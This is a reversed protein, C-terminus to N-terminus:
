VLAHANKLDITNQRDAHTRIMATCNTTWTGEMLMRRVQIQELWDSTLTNDAPTMLESHSKDFHCVVAATNIERLRYM